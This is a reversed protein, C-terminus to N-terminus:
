VNDQERFHKGLLSNPRGHTILVNVFDGENLEADSTFNVVKNQRNRGSYQRTDKKGRGEVMVEVTKNEYEKNKRTIIEKQIDLLKALRMKKVEDPVDDEFSEAKTGPRPSYAFAFIMDYEIERLATVTKEFDEETEGPFGVIFDSSLAIDKVEAKAKMVREKYQEYTYKRNMAKLVSDSGAQLPLHLYECVKANTKMVNILDDSFDKPHSTVFRVRRIGEELSVKDILEAFSIGDSQGKGYSNVNQGLLTVEKAGNDALYKIEDLIEQPERSKERGRVYPVICYSCFNDCGKMITVFSSVSVERRFSGISLAGDNVQTDSTRRGNEVCAIVEELRDLGDTGVVFDVFKNSKLIGAGEQQAVCGCYGIKVEPRQKKIKKFRGISSDAKHQPKERVSCTNVILYDGEEMTEAPVFGMKDLISAIRLSDYENMQCGMTHIFYKRM